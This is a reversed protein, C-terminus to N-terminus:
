LNPFEMYFGYRSVFFDVNVEGYVVDGFRYRVGQVNDGIYQHELDDTAFDAYDTIQLGEFYNECLLSLIDDQMSDEFVRDGSYQILLIEGTEDDLLVGVEYFKDKMSTSVWQWVIGSLSNERDWVLLPRYECREEEFLSILDTDFYPQLAKAVTNQLEEVSMYADETSIEIANGKHINKMLALKGMAPLEEQINLQVSQMEEIQAQSLIKRDQLAAMWKPFYAICVFVFATGLLVLLNGRNKWRGNSM